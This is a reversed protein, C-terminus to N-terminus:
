LMNALYPTNKLLTISITSQRQFKQQNTSLEPHKAILYSNTVGGYIKM